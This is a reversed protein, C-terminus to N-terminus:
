TGSPPRVKPGLQSLDLAALRMRVDSIAADFQGLDMDPDRAVMEERVAAMTKAWDNRHATNMKKWDFGKLQRALKAEYPIVGSLLLYAVGPYGLYGQWYSGNDNTMIAGMAADYAVDYHKNRSSSYVRAGQGILEIRKDGISGLAEYLKIDPPLKWKPM